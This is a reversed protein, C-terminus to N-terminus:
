IILEEEPLNEKDDKEELVKIEKNRQTAPRKKIKDSIENIKNLNDLSTVLKNLKAKEKPKQMRGRLRKIVQDQQNNDLNTLTEAAKDIREKEIFTINENEPKKDEEKKDEEKKDEDEKVEPLSYNYFNDQPFDGEGKLLDSLLVVAVKDM